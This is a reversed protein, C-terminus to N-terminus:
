RCGRRPCARRRSGCRMRARLRCDTPTTSGDSGGFPFSHRTEQGARRRSGRAPIGRSSRTERGTRPARRRGTDAHQAAAADLRSPEPTGFGKVPTGLRRPSRRPAGVQGTGSRGQVTRPTAPGARRRRGRAPIGRHQQVPEDGAGVRRSGGNTTTARELRSARRRGTDAHQAAAAVLRSPEPTGFGKPPTGLRRPLLPSRRGTGPWQPGPRHAINSPRSTEPEWAGPDGPEAEDCARAPACTAPRHRRAACCCRGASVAM